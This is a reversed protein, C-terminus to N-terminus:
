DECRIKVVYGKCFLETYPNLYFCPWMSFLLCHAPGCVITFTLVTHLELEGVYVIDIAFGEITAIISHKLSIM